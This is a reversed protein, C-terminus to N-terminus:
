YCCGRGDMRSIIDKHYDDGSMPTVVVHQERTKGCQPCVLLLTVEYKPLRVILENYAQRETSLSM